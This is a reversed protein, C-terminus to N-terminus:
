LLFLLVTKIGEQFVFHQMAEVWKPSIFKGRNSGPREGPSTSCIDPQGQLKLVTMHLSNLGGATQLALDRRGVWNSFDPLLPSNWDVALYNVSRQSNRHDASLGQKLSASNQLCM